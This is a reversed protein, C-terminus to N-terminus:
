SSPFCTPCRLKAWDAKMGHVLYTHLLVFLHLSYPRDATVLHLILLFLLQEM